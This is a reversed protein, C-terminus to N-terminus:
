CLEDVDRWGAFNHIGASFVAFKPWCGERWKTECLEANSWWSRMYARRYIYNRVRKSYTKLKREFSVFVLVLTNQPLPNLRISISSLYQANPFYEDSILYLRPPSVCNKGRSVELYRRGTCLSFNLFFWTKQRTSLNATVKVWSSHFNGFFTPWESLNTM